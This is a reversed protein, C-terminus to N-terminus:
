YSKRWTEMASRSKGVCRQCGMSNAPRSTAVGGEMSSVKVVTKFEDTNKIDTLDGVLNEIFKNRLAEIERNGKEIKELHKEWRATEERVRPDAHPSDPHQFWMEPQEKSNGSSRSIRFPAMQASIQSAETIGELLLTQSATSM